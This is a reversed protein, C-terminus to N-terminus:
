MKELSGEIDLKLIECIELILKKNSLDPNFIARRVKGTPIGLMKGITKIDINRDKKAMVLIKTIAVKLELIQELTLNKENTM